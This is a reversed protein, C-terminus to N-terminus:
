VPLVSQRFIVAGETLVVHKISVFICVMQCVFRVTHNTFIRYRFYYCRSIHSTFDRIENLISVPFEGKRVEIEAILPNIVETYKKYLSAIQSLHSDM